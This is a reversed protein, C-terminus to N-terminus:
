SGHLPGCDPDWEHLHPLTSRTLAQGKAKAKPRPRQGREKPGKGKASAGQGRAQIHTSPFIHPYRSKMNAEAEWTAGEVKSSNGDDTKSRKVERNVKKLKQEEILKAYVMLRSINM